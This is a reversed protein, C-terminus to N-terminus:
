DLRAHAIQGLAMRESSLWLSIFRFINKQAATNTVIVATIRNTSVRRGRSSTKVPMTVVSWTITLESIWPRNFSNRTLGPSTTVFWCSRATM